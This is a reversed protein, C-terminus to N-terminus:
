AYDVQFFPFVFNLSYSNEKSKTWGSAATQTPSPTPSVIIVPKPYRFHSANNSSDVM